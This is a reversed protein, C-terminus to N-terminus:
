ADRMAMRELAAFAILAASIGATVIALLATEVDVDVLRVIVTLILAAAMAAFYGVSLSKARHARTGEDEMLRRPGRSLLWGGVGALNCLLLLAWVVWIGTFSFSTRAPFDLLSILIFLAASLYFLTTRARSLREARDADSM